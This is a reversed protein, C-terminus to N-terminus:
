AKLERARRIFSETQSAAGQAQKKGIVKRWLFGLPGWIEMTINIETKSGNQTFEHTTRMKGLPLHSLDVFRFPPVFDEISMSVKPSGKPKLIFKSGKAANGDIQTYELEDDWKNWNPIDSIM